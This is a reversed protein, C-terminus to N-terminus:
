RVPHCRLFCYLAILAAIRRLLQEPCIFGIKAVLAHADSGIRCKGGLNENLEQRQDQAAPNICVQLVLALCHELPRIVHGDRCSQFLQFFDPHYAMQVSYIPQVMCNCLRLFCNQIGELQCLCIDAIVRLFNPFDQLFCFFCPLISPATVHCSNDKM